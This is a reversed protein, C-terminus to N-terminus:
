IFITLLPLNRNGADGGRCVARAPAAGGTCAISTRGLWGVGTCYLCIERAARAIQAGHIGFGNEAPDALGQELVERAFLNSSFFGQWAAEGLVLWSVAVLALATFASAALAGWRQSAILAVPVALAMHPKFALVGLCAGGLLPFRGCVMFLAFLSASLFGNQGHGANVLWAPFALTPLVAWREPLIRRLCLFLPAFSSVLWTVLAAPYALYALPLCLLAFVPPYFFPVFAPQAHPFLLREALAHAAPNYIASAHGARMTASATWLSVFDTGLPKGWRDVGGHSSAVYGIAILLSVVVLVNCWARARAGNLWDADRFIRLPSTM